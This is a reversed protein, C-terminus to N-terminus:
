KIKRSNKYFLNTYPSDIRFFTIDKFRSSVPKLDYEGRSNFYNIRVKKKEVGHIPGIQFIDERKYRQEVIVPINNKKLRKFMKRMGELKVPSRNELFNYLCKERELIKQFFAESRTREIESIDKKRFVVFGDYNFDSFDLMMVFNKNQDVVIGNFHTIASDDSDSLYIKVFHKKKQHKTLRKNM